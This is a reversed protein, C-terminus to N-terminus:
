SNVNYELGKALDSQIVGGLGTLNYPKGDLILILQGSGSVVQATEVATGGLELEEDERVKGAYVYGKKESGDDDADVSHVTGIYVSRDAKQPWDLPRPDRYTVKDLTERKPPPAQSTPYAVGEDTTEVGDDLNRENDLAKDTKSQASAKGGSSTSSSGAV